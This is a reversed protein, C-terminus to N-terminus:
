YHPPPTEEAQSAINSPTLQKLSNELQAMKLKLTTIERQQHTLADNLEQITHEQYAIKTELEIIKNEM